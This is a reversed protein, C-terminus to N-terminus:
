YHDVEQKSVHRWTPLGWNGFIHFLFTLFKYTWRIMVRRCGRIPQDM